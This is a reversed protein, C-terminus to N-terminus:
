RRRPPSAPRDPPACAGRRRRRRCQRRAVLLRGLRQARQLLGFGGFPPRDDLRGVDLRLLGDLSRSMLRHNSAPANASAAADSARRRLIIRVPRDRHDHRERGAPRGVGDDAIEALPHADREALRQHDFIDGAGAARDAGGADRAGRGVAVGDDAPVEARVGGVARDIRQRVIQHLVERRDRQQRAIRIEDDHLLSRGAFLRRSNM